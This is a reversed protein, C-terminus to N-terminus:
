GSSLKQYSSNIYITNRNKTSYMTNLTGLKLNYGVKYFNDLNGM